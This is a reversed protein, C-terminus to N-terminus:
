FIIFQFHFIFYYKFFTILYHQDARPFILYPPAREGAANVALAMSILTGREASTIQGVRVGRRSIVRNPKHVTTLGTEDVNWINHPQPDIKKLAEEYLDFFANVNSRNFASARALSTAEARRMSLKPHRNMFSEFWDQGAIRNKEWPKPVTKKLQKAFQFALERGLMSTLGFYVDSSHLMYMELAQEEEVSFFQFFISFIILLYNKEFM